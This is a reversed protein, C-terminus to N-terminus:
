EEAAVAREEQKLREKTDWGAGQGRGRVWWRCPKTKSQEGKSNSVRVEKGSAGALPSHSCRGGHDASHAQQRYSTQFVSRHAPLGCSTLSLSPQLSLSKHRLPRARPQRAAVLLRGTRFGQFATGAQPCAQCQVALAERVLQDAPAWVPRVNSYLTNAEKRLTQQAHRTCPPVATPHDGQPQAQILDHVRHPTSM